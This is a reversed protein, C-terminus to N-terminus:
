SDNVLFSIPVGSRLSTSSTEAPRNIQLINEEDYMSPSASAHEDPTTPDTLLQSLRKEIEGVQRGISNKLAEIHKVYDTLQNISSALVTTLDCFVMEAKAHENLTGGSWLATLPQMKRLLEAARANSNQALGVINELLGATEENCSSACDTLYGDPQAMRSFDISQQLLEVRAELQSIDQEAGSIKQRQRERLKASSLRSLHRRRSRPTMKGPEEEHEIKVLSSGVATANLEDEM